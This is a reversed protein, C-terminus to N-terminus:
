PNDLYVVLKDSHFLLGNGTSRMHEALELVEFFQTSEYSWKVPSSNSTHLDFTVQDLSTKLLHYDSNIGM